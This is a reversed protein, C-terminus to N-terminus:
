SVKARVGERGREIGEDVISPRNYVHRAPAICTFLTRIDEEPNNHTPYFCRSRRWKKVAPIRGTKIQRFMNRLRMTSIAASLTKKNTLLHIPDNSAPPPAISRDIPPFTFWFHINEPPLLLLLRVSQTHTDMRRILAPHISLLLRKMLRPLWAGAHYETPWRSEGNNLKNEWSISVPQKQVPVSNSVHTCEVRGKTADIASEKM